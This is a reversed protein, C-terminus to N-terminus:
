AALLLTYSPAIASLFTGFAYTFLAWQFLPRRGFRDSIPGFILAGLLLGINTVSGIAGAQTPTIDFERILLPLAFSTAEFDFGDLIQAIICGLLIFWLFKSMPSTDLFETYSMKRKPHTPALATAVGLDSPGIAGWTM